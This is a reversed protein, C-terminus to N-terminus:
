RSNRETSSIPRRRGRAPAAPKSWGHARRRRLPEAAPARGRRRADGRSTSRLRNPPRATPSRRSPRLARRGIGIERQRPRPVCSRDDRDLGAGRRRCRNRGAVISSIARPRCGRRRRSAPARRRHARGASPGCHRCGHERWSRRRAEAADDLEGLRGPAVRLDHAVHRHEVGLIQRRERGLAARGVDRLESPHAARALRGQEDQRFPRRDGVRGDRSPACARAQTGVKSGSPTSAGCYLSLIPRAAAAPAGSRVIGISAGAAMCKVAGRASCVMVPLPSLGSTVSRRPRSRARALIAVLREVHEGIGVEEGIAPM